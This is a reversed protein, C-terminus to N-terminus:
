RMRIIEELGRGVPIIVRTENGFSPVNEFRPRRPVTKVHRRLFDEGLVKDLYSPPEDPPDIQIPGIGREDAVRM